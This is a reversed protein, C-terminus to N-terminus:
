FCKSYGFFFVPSHWRLIFILSNVKQSANSFGSILLWTSNFGYVFLSFLFRSLCCGARKLSIYVILVFHLLNIFLVFLCLIFSFISGLILSYHFYKIRSVSGLWHIYYKGLFVVKAYGLFGFRNKTVTVAFLRTRVFSGNQVIGSTLVKVMRWSWKMNMVASVVSSM